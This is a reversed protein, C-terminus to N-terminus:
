SLRALQTAVIVRFGYTIGRYIPDYRNRAGCRVFSSSNAYSGGRLLLDGSDVTFDEKLWHARRPYVAYSGATWEWVTGALDLAGCAAAGAPCTAVDPPGEEWNRGFVAHRATPEAEGWPHTHCRWGADYAAAAEWEAESPLRLTYGRPLVGALQASLWACFAAAEYWRVGTVAQRPRSNFPAERWLVPKPDQQKRLWELGHPTWWRRERYGGADIFAAYQAVTVPVRAVWFSQLELDAYEEGREWGGIRYTGPRVYCWYGEPAGFRESRRELEARWEHIAVPINWAGQSRARERPAEAPAAPEAAGPAAGQGGGAERAPESSAATGAGGPPAGEAGARDARLLGLVAVALGASAAGGVAGAALLHLAPPVPAGQAEPARERERLAVALALQGPESEALDALLRACGAAYQPDALALALAQHTALREAPGPAALRGLLYPRGERRALTAVERSSLAALAKYAAPALLLQPQTVLPLLLEAVLTRRTLEDLPAAPDPLPPEWRLAARAFVLRLRDLPLGATLPPDGALLAEAREGEGLRRLLALYDGLRRQHEAATYIITQQAAINVDRGAIIPGHIPPGASRHQDAGPAEREADDPGYPKAM